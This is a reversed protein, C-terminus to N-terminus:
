CIEVIEFDYSDIANSFLNLKKGILTFDTRNVITSQIHNFADKASKYYTSLQEDHKKLIMELFEIKDGLISAIIDIIIILM